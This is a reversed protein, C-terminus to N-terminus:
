RHNNTIATTIAIVVKMLPIMRPLSRSTKL